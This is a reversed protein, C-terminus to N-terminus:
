KGSYRPPLATFQSGGLLIPRPFNSESAGNKESVELDSSRRWTVGAFLMALGSAPQKGTLETVMLNPISKSHLINCIVSLVPLRYLLLIFVFFIVFPFALAIYM